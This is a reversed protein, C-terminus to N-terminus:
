RRERVNPAMEELADVASVLRPNVAGLLTSQYLSDDTPIRYVNAYLGRIADRLRDPGFAAAAEDWPRIFVQLLVPPSDPRMYNPTQLEVGRLWLGGVKEFRRIRARWLGSDAPRQSEWLIFPLGLASERAASQILDFLFHFIATGAGHGRADPAVGLYCVYGGYGPLFAGYGFGIPAQLDSKRVAVVLHSRRQGPQWERRRAPTRALWEWPIRESEDLVSEYLLQAAPLIPDDIATIERCEIM